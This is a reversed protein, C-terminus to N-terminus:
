QRVHLMRAGNSWQTQNYTSNNPNQDIVQFLRNGTNSGNVVECQSQGTGIWDPDYDIVCSGNENAYRQGNANSETLALQDVNVKALSQFMNVRRSRIYWLPQEKIVLRAHRNISLIRGPNTTICSCAPVMLIPMLRALSTLEYQAKMDWLFRASLPVTHQQLFPILLM